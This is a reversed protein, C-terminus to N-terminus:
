KICEIFTMPPHNMLSSWFERDNELLGEPSLKPAHWRVERFGANRFAEEHVAVDLHYNEIDFLGDSLHFTWKIPTGQQWDGVVSTEFGYKRYSPATRFALAPNCNVTVFRGGSKLSRAIGDCMGQLEERTQAYNLLYAAVTLDFEDADSLDRADAVVYEIGLRHREEQTQALKIMGQSLDVGTVRGAGRQRIMRTYFGEGCAVDLV